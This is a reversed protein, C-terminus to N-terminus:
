AAAKGAGLLAEVAAFAYPKALVGCGAFREPVTDRHSGTAFIIRKGLAAIRDAVPYVEDGGLHVDLVATDFGDPGLAEVAAGAAAVSEANGAVVCGLMELMDELVLGILVEDEVILVRQMEATFEVRYGAVM